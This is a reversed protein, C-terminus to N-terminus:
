AVIIVLMVPHIVFIQPDSLWSHLQKDNFQKCALAHILPSGTRYLICTDCPRLKYVSIYMFCIIKILCLSYCLICYSFYLRSALLIM